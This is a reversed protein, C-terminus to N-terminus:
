DPFFQTLKDNFNKNVPKFDSLAKDFREVEM